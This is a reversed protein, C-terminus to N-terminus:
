SKEEYNKWDKNIDLLTVYVRVHYDFTKPYIEPNPLDPFMKIVGKLDEKTINIPRNHAKKMAM